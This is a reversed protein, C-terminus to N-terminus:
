GLLWWCTNVVVNIISHCELKYMFLVCVLVRLFMVNLWQSVGNHYDIIIDYDLTERFVGICLCLACWYMFLMNVLICLPMTVNIYLSGCNIFVCMLKDGCCAIIMWSAFVTPISLLVFLIDLCYIGICFYLFQIGTIIIDRSIILICM